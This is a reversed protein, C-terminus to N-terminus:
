TCLNRTTFYNIISALYFVAAFLFILALGKGWSKRLWQLM